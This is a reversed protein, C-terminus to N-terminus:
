QDHIKRWLVVVITKEVDRVATRADGDGVRLQVVVPLSREDSVRVTVSCLVDGDGDRHRIVPPRVQVRPGRRQPKTVAM